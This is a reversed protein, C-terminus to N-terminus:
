LRRRATIARLRERYDESRVTEHKQIQVLTYQDLDVQDLSRMSLEGVYRYGGADMARRVHLLSGNPDGMRGNGFYGYGEVMNRGATAQFGARWLFKDSAADLVEPRITLLFNEQQRIWPRVVSNTLIYRLQQSRNVAGGHLVRGDMLVITGAKAELNIAPPVKDFTGDANQLKHSGPIILTGGNVEDVDQLIYITNVLVPAGAFYYPAILSQDQHLGQPHCGPYSINSIFSLHNWGAGLAEDLLTEILEGAQVADTDHTMCKVFDAGKNVLAWLHQQAPAVHAIGLAREAAAQDEVRDRLRACQAASVGDEILCYGWDYFDRRLQKIDKTERPLATSRWHDHKRAVTTDYYWGKGWELEDKPGPVRLWPNHRSLSRYPEGSKHFASYPAHADASGAAIAASTFELPLTM